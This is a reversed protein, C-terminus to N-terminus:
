FVFGVRLLLLPGIHVLTDDDGGSPAQWVGVEALVGHDGPLAYITEIFAKLTLYNTGNLVARRRMVGYGIGVGPRFTLQGDLCSVCAKFNLSADLLAESRPLDFSEAGGSWDMWLLDVAMGYSFYDGAPMDGFFGVTLSNDHGLKTDGIRVHGASSMGVKLGSMHGSQGHAASCAFMVALAITLYITRPTRSRTPMTQPMYIM